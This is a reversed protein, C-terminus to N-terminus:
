KSEPLSINNEEILIETPKGKKKKKIDSLEDKTKHTSQSSLQPIKQDAM